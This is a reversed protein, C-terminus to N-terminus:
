LARKNETVQADGVGDDTGDAVTEDRNDPPLASAGVDSMASSLTGDGVESKDLESRGQLSQPASKESENEGRKTSSTEVANRASDKIM